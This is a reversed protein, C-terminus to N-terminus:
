RNKIEIRDLIGQVSVNQHTLYMRTVDEIFVTDAKTKAQIKDLSYGKNIYKIIRTVLTHLSSGKVTSNQRYNESSYSKAVPACDGEIKAAPELLAHKSFLPKSVPSRDRCSKVTPGRNAHESLDSRYGSTGCKGCSAANDSAALDAKKAHGYYITRPHLALLRAWSKEIQTGKHLELEYLPNLDGVFLYGENLWLSISDETHGPTHLLEGHLGCSQLLKRSETLPIRLVQEDIIPHFSSNREKAFVADAAHLCSDQVDAIVIKPGCDAIEQAIGMHDPHFHSLLIFRIDQVSLHLEGMAHCFAPFTGAWGTDWLISGNEGEILYTNTASYRLEHIKM